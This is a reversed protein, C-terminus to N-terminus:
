SHHRSNKYQTQQHYQYMTYTDFAALIYAAVAIDFEPLIFPAIAAALYTYLQLPLLQITIGVEIFHVM